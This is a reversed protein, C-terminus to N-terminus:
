CGSRHECFNLADRWVGHARDCDAQAMSRASMASPQAAPISCASFLLSAVILWRLDLM